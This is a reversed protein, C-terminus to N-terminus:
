FSKQYLPFIMFTCQLITIIFCHMGTYTTKEDSLIAAIEAFADRRNQVDQHAELSCDWIVPRNKVSEILLDLISYQRSYLNNFVHIFKLTGPALSQMM